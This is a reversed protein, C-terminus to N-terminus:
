QDLSYEHLLLGKVDEAWRRITNWDRYDGEEAKMARIILRLGTPLKKYIMAGAFLGSAVPEINPAIEEAAELYSAVKCRNEDTDDKMTLCVLFYAVKKNGLADRYKGLFALVSPHMQGAHIASGIVVANYPEIDRVRDAPIVDVECDTGSMTRAIEEAVEEASGAWSGYTVLVHDTM